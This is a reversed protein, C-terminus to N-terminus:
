DRIKGFYTWCDKFIGPVSVGAKKVGWTTSMTWMDDMAWGGTTGEQAMGEEM